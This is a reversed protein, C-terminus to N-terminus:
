GIADIAAAACDVGSAAALVTCTFPVSELTVTVSLLLVV